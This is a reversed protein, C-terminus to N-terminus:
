TIQEAVDVAVNIQAEETSAGLHPTLVVKDGMKLLPSGEVPEKDFVDIAAMEVHGNQIAEALDTENVIGGRACNIIKVGKRMKAITDKNILNLTDKNKPIHLTIFDASKWIDDLSAVYCAGATEVIEKGVFPDYVLVKMGMARAASAVRSGVKGFGVVGLIKNFIERGTLKSRDWRGEKISVDAAPIHRTMALM